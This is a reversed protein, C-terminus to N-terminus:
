RRKVSLKGANDRLAYQPSAEDGVEAVATLLYSSVSRREMKKPPVCVDLLSCSRCKSAYQVIPTTGSDLIDHYRRAATETTERLERGFVVNERRRDRGYFLAGTAIVVGLMEELCLAQACLQVRDCDIRKSRGRKYEVPFPRWYGVLGPVRGARSDGAEARHFEVVDTRGTLGLRLSRLSLSRAIRLQARSEGAGADVREHLVRGQATLLNERWTRELHILACQRECFMLHQLGSLPLLDAEPYRSPYPEGATPM